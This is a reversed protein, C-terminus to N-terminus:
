DGHGYRRLLRARLDATAIAVEDGDILQASAGLRVLLRAAVAPDAAWFEILTGEADRHLIEVPYYDAVWGATADLRIRSRVDDVGPSYHVQPPPAEVPPDFTKGTPAAGIVRDVRFVREAAALRCHASVYWNGLTSFVVWPEIERTTVKGSAVSAHTIEVVEGAMAADRLLNVFDPEEALDVAVAGAVDPLVAQLKDVASGLAQPAVASGRLALGAALLMLAEAATLRVPVAFYEALDVIVEDEDIYAEMLDGPGYGPLGCVFVINLDEVLQKREYGFRQCVDTVSAGPNAIVWPLMALLRTLREATRPSSM